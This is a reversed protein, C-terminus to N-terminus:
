PVNREPRAQERNGRRARWARGSFHGAGADAGAAAHRELRIVDGDVQLEHGAERLVEEADVAEADLQIAAALRDLLEDLM